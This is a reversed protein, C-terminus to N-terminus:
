WAGAWPWLGTQKYNCNGYIVCHARALPGQDHVSDVSKNIRSNERPPMTNMVSPATQSLAVYRDEANM